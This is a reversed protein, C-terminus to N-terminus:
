YELVNNSIERQYLKSEKKHQISNEIISDDSNFYWEENM